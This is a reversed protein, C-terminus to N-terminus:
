RRWFASFLLAAVAVGLIGALGNHRLAAAMLCAPVLVAAIALGAFSSSRAQDLESPGYLLRIFSGGSRGDYFARASGWAFSRRYGLERALLKEYSRKKRLEESESWDKWDALGLQDSEVLRVSHLREAHFSLVLIFTRGKFKVRTVRWSCWPENETWVERTAGFTTQLFATRTLASTVTTGDDLQLAGTARDIV